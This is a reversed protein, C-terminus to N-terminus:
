KKARKPSRAKPAFEVDSYDGNVGDNADHQFFEVEGDVKKPLETVNLDVENKDEVDSELGGPSPRAMAIDAADFADQEIQTIAEPLFHHPM